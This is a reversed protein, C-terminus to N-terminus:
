GRSGALISEDVGLGLLDCCCKWLRRPSIPRKLILDANLVAEFSVSAPSATELLIIIKTGPALRKVDKSIASLERCELSSGLVLIDMKRKMITSGVDYPTHGALLKIRPDAKILGLLDDFGGRKGRVAMLSRGANSLTGM